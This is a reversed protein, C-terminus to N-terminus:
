ELPKHGTTPALTEPTWDPTKGNDAHNIAIVNSLQRGQGITTGFGADWQNTSGGGDTSVAKDVPDGGLAHVGNIALQSVDSANGSGATLGLQSGDQSVTIVAHGRGSNIVAGDQAASFPGLYRGGDYILNHGQFGETDTPKPLGGVEVRVGQPGVLVQPRGSTDTSFEQPWLVGDSLPRGEVVRWGQGTPDQHPWPSDGPLDFMITNQSAVTGPHKAAYQAATTKIDHIGSVAIANGPVTLDVLVTSGHGPYNVVSIGPALQKVQPSVGVDTFTNLLPPPVVKTPTPPPPPPPKTTTPPPAPHTSTASQSTSQPSSVPVHAGSDSSGVAALPIMVSAAVIGLGAATAAAKQGVSSSQVREVVARLPARIGFVPM